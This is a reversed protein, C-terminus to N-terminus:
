RNGSALVLCSCGGGPDITNVLAIRDSELTLVAAVTALGSAAGAADGLLDTIKRIPPSKGGLLQEVGQRHYEDAQPSGTALWIAAVEDPQKDAEALALEVARAMANSSGSLNPDNALGCGILEGYIHAGRKQAHDSAELLLIGAGEGVPPDGSSAGVRVKSRAEIGGTLMADARGHRLLDFAYALADAASATGTCMTAHFGGLNYEIAALSAPTNAYAHSFLLPNALKAGKELMAVTFRELTDLCGYATGLSIGYRWREEKDVKLGGDKLALNCGALTFESARDLYTKQTDLYDEVQFDTIEAKAETNGIARLGELFAAKGIGLSSIPGVGTIVVRETAM